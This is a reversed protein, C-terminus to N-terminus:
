LAPEKYPIVVKVGWISKTALRGNVYKRDADQDVTKAIKGIMVWFPFDKKGLILSKRNKANISTNKVIERYWPTQYQEAKNTSLLVIKQGGTSSCSTAFLCLTCTALLTKM